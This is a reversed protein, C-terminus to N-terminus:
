AAPDILLEQAKLDQSLRSSGSIIRAGPYDWIITNFSEHPMAIASWDKYILGSQSCIWVKDPLAQSAKEMLQHIADENHTSHQEVIARLRYVRASPYIKEAVMLNAKAEGWLGLDMAASAAAMYGEASDPRSSILKQYWKLIKDANKQNSEPALDDWIKALDPHPNEKWAKEVISIVKRNKKNKLYYVALRTVTPVFYPNLKYASELEKMGLKKDGKEMEYDARMIHIAVRDDIIKERADPKHKLIKKGTVLADSWLGNKIELDYVTQLVWGQKPHLREAQRAFDLARSVNGEDLASKLLGRIGLFASDKDEM